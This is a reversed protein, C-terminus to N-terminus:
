PDGLEKGNAAEWVERYTPQGSLGSGTRPFSRSRIRRTGNLTIMARDGALSWVQQRDASATVVRQNDPFPTSVSTMGKLTALEKGTAAELRPQKTRAPPSLGSATRSLCM